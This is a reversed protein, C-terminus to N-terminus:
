LLIYKQNRMFTTKGRIILRVLKDMGPRVDIRRCQYTGGDYRARVNRVELNWVSPSPHHVRYSDAYIGLGEHIRTNTSVVKSAHSM